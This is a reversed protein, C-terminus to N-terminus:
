QTKVNNKLMKRLSEKRVQLSIDDVQEWQVGSAMFKIRRYHM